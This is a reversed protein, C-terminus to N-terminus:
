NEFVCSEQEQTQGSATYWVWVVNQSSNQRFRAKQRAQSSPLLSQLLELLSESQTSFGAVDLVLSHAEVQERFLVQLEPVEPSRFNPRVLADPDHLFDTVSVVESKRITNKANDSTTPPSPLIRDPM